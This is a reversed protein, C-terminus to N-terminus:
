RRGRLRAYTAQVPSVDVARADHQEGPMRDLRATTRRLAHREAPDFWTMTAEM